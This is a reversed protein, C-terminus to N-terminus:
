VEARFEHVVEYAPLFVQTRGAGLATPALRFSHRAADASFGTSPAGNAALM